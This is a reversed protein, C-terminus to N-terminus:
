KQLFHATIDEATEFKWKVRIPYFTIIISVCLPPYEGHVLSFFIIVSISIVLMVKGRVAKQLDIGATDLAYFIGVGIYSLHSFVPPHVVAQDIEGLSNQVCLDVTFVDCDLVIAENKIRGM